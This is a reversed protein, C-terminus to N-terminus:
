SFRVMDALPTAHKVCRVGGCCVEMERESGVGGVGVGGTEVSDLREGIRRM